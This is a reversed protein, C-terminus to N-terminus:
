IMIRTIASSNKAFWKCLVRYQIREYLLYFQFCCLRSLNKAGGKSDSKRLVSVFSCYFTGLWISRSNSMFKDFFLILSLNSFWANNAFPVLNRRGPFGSSTYRLKKYMMIHSITGTSKRIPNHRVTRYRNRESNAHDDYMYLTTGCSRQARRNEDRDFQHASGSSYCSTVRSEIRRDRILVLQDYGVLCQHNHMRYQSSYRGTHMSWWHGYRVLPLVSRVLLPYM